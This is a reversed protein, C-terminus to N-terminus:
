DLLRAAERGALDRLWDTMSTFGAVAAARRFRDRDEPAATFYVGVLNRDALTDSGGRNPKPPPAPADAPKRKRAM